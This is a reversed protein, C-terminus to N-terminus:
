RPVKKASHIRISVRCLLWLIQDNRAQKGLTKLTVSPLTDLSQRTDVPICEAFNVFKASHKRRPVRCVQSVKGLTKTNVSLLTSFSKRTNEEECEAFKLFKASHKRTSVRCLQSVKGLTKTRVSPLSSFSQRTNKRQASPLISTM